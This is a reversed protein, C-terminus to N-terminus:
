GLAKGARKTLSEVVTDHLQTYFPQKFYQLHVPVKVPQFGKVIELRKEAEAIHRPIVARGLGMAVGEVIGYVDDYYGRRIAPAARSQAAFFEVTTQDDTDHDLYLDAPPDYQASTVLVNEEEGLKVTELDSRQLPRDIVIFDVAGHLLRDPLDRLEVELFYPQLRPNARLVPALSPIVVSRLVTSYAALRLSGGLGHEKDGTLDSVLEAELGSRAQCYRLLREGAPTPAVGRPNRVFLTLGLSDELGQVRQTLASQTIHLEKAARSFNLTRAVAFFADLERSSLSM